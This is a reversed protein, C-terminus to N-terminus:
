SEICTVPLFDFFRVRKLTDVVRDIQAYFLPTLVQFKKIFNEYNIFNRISFLLFFKPALPDPQAGM